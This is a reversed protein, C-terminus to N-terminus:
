FITYCWVRFRGVFYCINQSLVLLLGFHKVIDKETKENTSRVKQILDASLVNVISQIRRDYGVFM